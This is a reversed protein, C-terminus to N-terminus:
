RRAVQATLYGMEGANGAGIWDAFAALEPPADARAVGALDFGVELALSKALAAVARLTLRDPQAPARDREEVGGPAGTDRDGHARGGPASRERHASLGRRGPM